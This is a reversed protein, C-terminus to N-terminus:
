ESLKVALIRATIDTGGGPPFGAIIKVTRNPWAQAWGATANLSLALGLLAAGIMNRRGHGTCNGGASHFDIRM